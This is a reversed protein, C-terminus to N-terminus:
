TIVVLVVCHEPSVGEEASGIVSSITLLLSSVTAILLSYETLIAVLDLVSKDVSMHVWDEFSFGGM